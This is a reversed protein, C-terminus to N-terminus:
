IWKGSKGRVTYHSTVIIDVDKTINKDYSKASHM